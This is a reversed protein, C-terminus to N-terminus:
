KIRGDASSLVQTFRESRKELQRSLLTGPFPHFLHLRPNEFRDARFRQSLILEIDQCNRPM